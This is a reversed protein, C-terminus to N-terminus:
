PVPPLPELDPALFIARARVSALLAKSYYRYPLSRDCLESCRELLERSSSAASRARADAVLVLWVRTLTEFYGRASTELLGHRENLRIIGARLRLHAEDLPHQQLHLFATRLHAEHTWEASTLSCNAFAQWLAQDDM